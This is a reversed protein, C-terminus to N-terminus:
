FSRAYRAAVVSAQLNEGLAMPDVGLGDGLPPVPAACGIHPGAGFVRMRGYQTDLLFRDNDREPLM